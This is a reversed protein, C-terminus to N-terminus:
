TMQVAKDGRRGQSPGEGRVGLACAPPRALVWTNRDTQSKTESLTPLLQTETEHCGANDEQHLLSVSTNINVDFSCYNLLRNQIQLQNKPPKEVSMMNGGLETRSSDCQLAALHCYYGGPKQFILTTLAPTELFASLGTNHRCVDHCLRSDRVCEFLDTAKDVSLFLPDVPVLKSIGATPPPNFQLM